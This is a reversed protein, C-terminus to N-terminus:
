FYKVTNTQIQYFFITIGNIINNITDYSFINIQNIYDINLSLVLGM